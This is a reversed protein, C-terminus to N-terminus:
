LGVLQTHTHDRSASSDRFLDTLLTSVACVCVRERERERGRVCVSMCVSFYTGRLCVFVCMRTRQRHKNTRQGEHCVVPSVQEVFNNQLHTIRIDGFLAGGLALRRQTGQVTTGLKVCACRDHISTDYACAGACIVIGKRPSANVPESSMAGAQTWSLLRTVIWPPPVNDSIFTRGGRMEM